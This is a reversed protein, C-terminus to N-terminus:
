SPTNIAAAPGIVYKQYKAMFGDHTAAGQPTNYRLRYLAWIGEIDNAAPIAERCRLYQVRAMAIAYPDNNILDDAHHTPSLHCIALALDHHYRLYNLWIDDHTANEMQFIGKAVASGLQIRYVGFDSENAMTALLLEAAGPSYINMPTLTQEIMVRVNAPNLPQNM